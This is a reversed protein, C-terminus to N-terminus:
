VVKSERLWKLDRSFLYRIDKVGLKFMALRDIGIGWAIVPVDVGLPKTLEERFIGSGGFEIWGLESHYASLQISPETFPYYDPIFKVKEAGAIEKAFIELIGLLNQLNLSEDLVIGEAQNFEILHTADLVDPRYCRAIAFYKGPVSPNSALTRASLCTGHARPLLRMAKSPDWRYGWGTSGTTWGNEHTEKVREVIEKPPLDGTAPQKLEYTSTWDRAPHDQPQYLADFNWFESEVLPGTMEEFGLEVLKRKMGEVFRQYPQRKGPYIRRGTVEVNYPKFRAKDWLGTKILEEPLHTIEKEALKQARAIIDEKAKEVLVRSILISLLKEDIEKGEHIDQLGKMEPIEQPSEELYLTGGEVKVWGNKKCWQLAISFNDVRGRAEVITMPEKLADMLNMEPLGERLYKSGEETLRYM